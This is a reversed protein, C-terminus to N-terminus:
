DVGAPWNSIKWHDHTYNFLLWCILWHHFTCNTAAKFFVLYPLPFFPLFSLSLPLLITLKWLWTANWTTMSFIHNYYLSLSHLPRFFALQPCIRQPKLVSTLFPSIPFPFHITNENTKILLGTLRKLLGGWSKEEIEGKRSKRKKVRWSFLAKTLDFINFVLLLHTPLREERGVM